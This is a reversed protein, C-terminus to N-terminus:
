KQKTIIIGLLLGALCGAVFWKWSFLDPPKEVKTESITENRVKTLEKEYQYLLAQLSDCSATVYITDGQMTAKVQARGSRYTFVAGEPLERLSPIAIPLTVQDM